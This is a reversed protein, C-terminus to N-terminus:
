KYIQMQRDIFEEWNDENNSFQPNDLLNILENIIHNNNNYNDNNLDMIYAYKNEKIKVTILGKNLLKNKLIINEIHTNIKQAKSDTYKEM